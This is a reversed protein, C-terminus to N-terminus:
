RARELALSVERIVAACRRVFADDVEVLTSVESVDGENFFHVDPLKVRFPLECARQVLADYSRGRGHKLVNVALQLDRFRARLEFDGQEELLEGARRFGDSCDLGDQLIADFMSFMGAASIARQLQIMQLGKVLRTASSTELDDIVRAQAQGLAELSFDTCHEILEHFSHM